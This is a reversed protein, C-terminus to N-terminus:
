IPVKVLYKKGSSRASLKPHRLWPNLLKVEKYTTGYKQAFTAINPISKVEVETTAIPQYMTNSDLYFGYKEPNQHIAKIALIRFVYRSTETTLYLDYYNEVKQRELQRRIGTRGANYAAAALTWSGLSKKEALLYKAAAHTSKEIHYREDVEEAVELGFTKAAAKMFQWPGKAGAYSVASMELGSEALALYKFDDPVGHEALIPEIIPFYRNAQKLMRITSSHWYTNVLLERDLRERIDYQHLPAEEGGLTIYDPTPLPKIVQEFTKANMYVEKPETEETQETNTDTNTTTTVTTSDMNTSVLVGVLGLTILTTLIILVNSKM